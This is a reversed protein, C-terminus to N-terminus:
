GPVQPDAPLTLRDKTRAEIAEDPNVVRILVLPLREGQPNLQSGSPFGQKELLCTPLYNELQAEARSLSDTTKMM